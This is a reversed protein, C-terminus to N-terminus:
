NKIHSDKDLIVWLVTEKMRFWEANLLVALQLKGWSVM